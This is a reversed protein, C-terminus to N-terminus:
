TRYFAKTDCVPGSVTIEVADGVNFSPFPPRFKAMKINMHAVSAKNVANLM